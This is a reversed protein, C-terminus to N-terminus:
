QLCDNYYRSKDDSKINITLKDNVTIFPLAFYLPYNFFCEGQLSIIIMLLVFFKDLKKTHWNKYIISLYMLIFLIGMKAIIDTFGNSFSRIRDFWLHDSYRTQNHLSNGLIPHKKIYHFDIAASGLRGVSIYGDEIVEMENDIKEGLFESHNYMYLSGIVVSIGLLLKLLINKYFSLVIYLVLFGLAIYATTSFTSIIALIIVVCKKKHVEWLEKINDLYMLFTLMIYGHFAGPEWFMGSNRFSSEGTLLFGRIKVNHVILSTFNGNNISIGPYLGIMYLLQGVLSIACLLYMVHLYANKFGSDVIRVILIGCTATALFNIAAPYSFYHLSVIQFLFIISIVMYMVKSDNNIIKRKKYASYIILITALVVNRYELFSYESILPNGSIFLLLFVWLYDKRKSKLNNYSLMNQGRKPMKYNLQM